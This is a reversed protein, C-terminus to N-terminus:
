EFYANILRGNFIGYQPLSDYIEFEGVVTVEANLEPYDDPYVAEKDALVFEFGQACCAMADMVVVNFFHSQDQPNTTVVLNGKMRITQGAYSSQDEMIQSVQAFIMTSSLTTLDIDVEKSAVNQEQQPKIEAPQPSQDIKFVVTGSAAYEGDNAGCGSLLLCILLFVGIKRM